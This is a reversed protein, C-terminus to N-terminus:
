LTLNQPRFEIKLARRSGDLILFEHASLDEKKGQRWDPEPKQKFYLTKTPLTSNKMENLDEEIKQILTEIKKDFSVPFFVRLDMKQSLTKGIAAKAERISSGIDLFIFNFVPKGGYLIKIESSAEEKQVIWSEGTDRVHEELRTYFFNRNKFSQEYPDLDKVDVRKTSEKKEQGGIREYGGKSLCGGGWAFFVTGSGFFFILLGSSLFFLKFRKM